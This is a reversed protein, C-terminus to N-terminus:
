GGDDDGGYHNCEGWGYYFTVASQAVSGWSPIIVKRCSGILVSRASPHVM